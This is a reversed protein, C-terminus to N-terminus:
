AIRRPQLRLVKLYLNALVRSARRAHLAVLDKGKGAEDEANSLANIAAAIRDRTGDSVCLRDHAISLRLVSEDTTEHDFPEDFLGACQLASIQADTLNIAVISKM